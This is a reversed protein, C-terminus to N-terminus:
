MAPILSRMEIPEAMNRHSAQVFQCLIIALSTLAGRFGMATPQVVRGTSNDQPEVAKAVPVPDFQGSVAITDQSTGGDTNIPTQLSM